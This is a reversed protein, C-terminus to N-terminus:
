GEGNKDPDIYGEKKVNEQKLEGWYTRICM